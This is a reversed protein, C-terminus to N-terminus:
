DNTMGRNAKTGAWAILGPLFLTNLDPHHPLIRVTYGHLGSKRCPAASAEFIHNDQKDSDVPEMLTTEAEVIEGDAGVRGLYLEVAVDEPTLDGLYVGARVRVADGVRVETSSEPEVTQIRVRAWNERVRTKWTTLAQARALDDATLQEYRTAAPLYFRETYEHVMRHTNFYHSLTGISAKMQTIWRRPLRGTGRDYFSPAVDRELLEYLAEAEIQDQRDLADYTEGRGIAWGVDPRYAEDWWGDLISLNLVGNAAAKM